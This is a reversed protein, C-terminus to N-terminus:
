DIVKNWTQKNLFLKPYITFDEPEEDVEQKNLNILLEDLEDESECHYTSHVLMVNSGYGKLSYTVVPIDNAFYFGIMFMNIPDRDDISFIGISGKNFATGVNIFQSNLKENVLKFDKGQTLLETNLNHGYIHSMVKMELGSADNMVKIDKSMCSALDNCGNMQGVIYGYEFLTGQDEDQLNVIYKNCSKMSDLNNNFILKTMMSKLEPNSEKFFAISEDRPSFYKQNLGRLSNEISDVTAIQQPNFFGSAIYYSDSKKPTLHPLKITTTALPTTPSTLAESM